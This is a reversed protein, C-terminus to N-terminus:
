LLKDMLGRKLLGEHGMVNIVAGSVVSLKEMDGERLKICGEEVMTDSFLNVLIDRKDSRIVALEGDRIGLASMSKTHVRASGGIKVM